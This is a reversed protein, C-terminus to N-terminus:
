RLGRAEGMARECERGAAQREKTVSQLQSRLHEIQEVASDRSGRLESAAAKYARKKERKRELAEQPPSSSVLAPSPHPPLPFPLPVRPLLPTAPSCTAEGNACMSAAVTM